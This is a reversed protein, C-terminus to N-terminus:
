VRGLAKFLEVSDGLSRTSLFRRRVLERGALAMRGPLRPQMLLRVCASACEEISGVLLGTKGDIIQLRIGGVNGGVVPKSKWLAEAVTLGFGERLSKQVVVTACRQFANVEISGVGQLNSLLHIDADGDRHAQTKNFWEWGEPDDSAMSAVMVLQIGPVQKRVLRFADIVGLPDKWPDFRSVQLLFPREPDVGHRAVIERSTAPDLPINKPSLPDITPASFVVRPGVLDDPLFEPLTFIAADYRAVYPALFNWVPAHTRTLDIHCRWIWRGPPRSGLIEGLYALLAAPQADHVVVFDYSKGLEVFADANARVVKRYTREMAEGWPVEMGQLGNHIAKTVNFFPEGAQIVRWESEIGLERELPVNTQLIEAVGGGFATSNVHLVRAGALSKAAARLSEVVDKGAPAAYDDLHHATVPVTDIM